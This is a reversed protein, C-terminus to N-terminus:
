IWGKNSALTFLIAGVSIILTVYKLVTDRKREYDEEIEHKTEDAGQRAAKQVKVETYISDIKEALTKYDEDKEDQIKENRIRLAEIQKDREGNTKDKVGVMYKLIKLDGVLEHHTPCHVAINTDQKM